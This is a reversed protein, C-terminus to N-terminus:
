NFPLDDTPSTFLDDGNNPQAAYGLNQGSVNITGSMGKGELLKTDSITADVKKDNPSAPQREGYPEDNYDNQVAAKIKWAKCETKHFKKGDRMTIESGVLQWSVTVMQGIAFNDVIECRDGWIVFEPETKYTGPIEIRFYRKKSTTLETIPSIGSLVGTTEYSNNM